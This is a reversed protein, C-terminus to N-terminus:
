GTAPYTMRPGFLGRGRRDGGSLVTSVRQNDLTYTCWVIHVYRNVFAVCPRKILLENILYFHENCASLEGFARKERGDPLNGRVEAHVEIRNSERIAPQLLFAQNAHPM